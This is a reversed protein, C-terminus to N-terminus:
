KFKTIDNIRAAFYPVNKDEEILFIAFTDDLFFERPKNELIHASNKLVSMGAESKIKGGKRNLEFQITQIAKEIYYVEGTSFEFEKDEIEKFENKENLRINPIKIKDGDILMNSGEYNESKIIINNYIENFTKGEPSKCLIVEDNKDTLLKIAFDNNSNYYLVRVQDKYNDTKSKIGFYEVNDTNKFKSKEWEDFINKFKFEKKLMAYLFYNDESNRPDWNFDNLIDSNENFKEKIAKEIEEKLEYSLFGYKKYYSKESLDATTFTEKNLNEVVKLQPTFIIDQKALDNKLDNWILQFTGCWISNDTIEDDLTLVTTLGETKGLPKSFFDDSTRTKNWKFIGCILIALILITIIPIMIKKM